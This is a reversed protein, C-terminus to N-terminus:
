DGKEDGGIKASERGEGRRWMPVVFFFTTSAMVGNQRNGGIGYGDVFNLLANQGDMLLAEKRGKEKDSPM